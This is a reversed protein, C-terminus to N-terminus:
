GAVGVRRRSAWVIAGAATAVAVGGLCATRRWGLASGSELDGPGSLGAFVDVLLAPGPDIVVERLGRLARGMKRYQALEAQCQLCGDLHARLRPDPHVSDLLAPLAASVALCRSGGSRPMDFLRPM